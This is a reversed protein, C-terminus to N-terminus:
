VSNVSHSMSHVCGRELPKEPPNQEEPHGECLSRQGSQDAQEIPTHDKQFTNHADM